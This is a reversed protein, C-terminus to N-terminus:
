GPRRTERSVVEKALEHYAISGVASKAYLAIPKSYSPAEALKTNRPIYSNFVKDGFYDRIEKMVQKALKTRRNVMTFVIGEVRLVPNLNGSIIEMTKLLQTIGEMAYYEPQLPILVSDAATLSNITLLGLSPPTDILIYDYLDRIQKLEENLVKERDRHGILEIEIGILDVDSICLHLGEIETERAVELMDAKGLMVDYMTKEDERRQMGFGSSANGQSDFDILMTRKGLLALYAALNVATTTKGVGGKQNAISIIKGM